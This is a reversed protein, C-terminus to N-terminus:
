SQSAAPRKRIRAIVDDLSSFSGEGREHRLKQADLEAKQKDSLVFENNANLLELVHDLFAEDDVLLLQQLVELKKIELSM